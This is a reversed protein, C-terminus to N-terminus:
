NECPFNSSAETCLKEAIEKGPEFFDLTLRTRRCAKPAKSSAGL